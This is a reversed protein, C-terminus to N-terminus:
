YGSVNSGIIDTEGSPASIKEEHNRTIGIGTVAWLMAFVICLYCAVAWIGYQGAPVGLVELYFVGSAGWPVLPLLMTGADELTRSLNERKLGMKAYADKLLSGVMLISVSAVGATFVLVISSIITTGVLEWVQLIRQCFVDLFVELCGIKEIIGAFGYGCFITIVITTMSSIGGRNLLRIMDGDALLSESAGPVMSLKFGSMIAAMGDHFDFGHVVVGLVIAAVASLLMLPVAPKRMMSGIIIIAVPLLLLINWHYIGDLHQVLANSALDVQVINGTFFQGATFYVLLGVLSAPITTYLMHRIHTFLDVGCVLAALNTTDSLPSLKDGFVGGAIIAGCAMPLPVGMEAAIAMLAVGATATSGWATGTAVSVVAVILFATVLFLQPHILKLGYYILMPVTGSFIWTGVVIGVTWIIFMTPMSEELKASIGKEIEKWSYGLRHAIFAAYAAAILLLPQISIKFVFSGIGVVLFMFIICSLAQAFTAKQKM